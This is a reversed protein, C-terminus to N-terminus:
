WSKSAAAENKVLARTRRSSLKETNPTIYQRGVISSSSKARERECGKQIPTSGLINNIMITYQEPQM